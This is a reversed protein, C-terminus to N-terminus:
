GGIINQIEKNLDEIKQNLSVILNTKEEYDKNLVERYTDYDGDYFNPDLKADTPDLSIRLEEVEFSGEPPNFPDNFNEATLPEGSPINDIIFDPVKPVPNDNSYGSLKKFSGFFESDGSFYIARKFGQDMVFVDPWGLPSNDFRAVLTGNPFRPHERQIQGFDNKQNASLLDKQLNEIISQLNSIEKDKSDQDLNFLQKSKRILAEHSMEFGEVPIELFLENYLKFFDEVSIKNKKSLLESFNTDIVERFTDSNYVNKNIPINEKM